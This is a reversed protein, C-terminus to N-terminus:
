VNASCGGRIVGQAQVAYLEALTSCPSSLAQSNPPSIPCQGETRDGIVAWRYSRQPSPKERKSVQWPQGAGTKGVTSLGTSLM